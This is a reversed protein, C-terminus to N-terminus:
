KVKIDYKIEIDYRQIMREITKPDVNLLRSAAQKNGKTHNLVRKVYCAEMEALTLWRDHPGTETVRDTQPVAESPSVQYNRIHDPLDEPHVVGNCLAVARVVANELERINGPWPYNELLYLAEPSFSAAPTGKRTREAFSSALSLIDERRDRLPPLHISVANLRYFLDQRFREQEIEQEVRRNSAAIVRVDVHQVRNSGVRRIEGEQLARLLKIQFALSTETIEDLFVTGGDAEEWLGRRDSHAGTFAGKVHGFLEAEILESPIAGCNVVVFPGDARPSRRHLASAIVEKGTGSEGTVLVPLDTASMRGVLKMVEIFPASRGIMEIDSTYGRTPQHNVARHRRSALQERVSRALILLEGVEFPKTLYDYAGLATADLAGVASGHGTMLVVQTEPSEEKFRRLVQYGSEGGLMVDCLVLSWDQSRSIDFALEASAVESTEWGDERLVASVFRRVQPEDDIILAKLEGDM